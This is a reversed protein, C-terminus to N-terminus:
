TPGEAYPHIGGEELSCRGHSQKTEEAGDEAGLELWMQGSQGWEGNQAGSPEATGAPLRSGPRPQIPFFVLCSLILM